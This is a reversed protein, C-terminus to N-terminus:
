PTSAFFITKCFLIERYDFHVSCCEGELLRRLEELLAPYEARAINITAESLSRVVPNCARENRLAELITDNTLTREAQRRRRKKLFLDPPFPLGTPFALSSVSM